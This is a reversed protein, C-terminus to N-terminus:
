FVIVSIKHLFKSVNPDSGEYKRLFETAESLWQKLKAVGLEDPDPFNHIRIGRTVGKDIDLFGYAQLRGLIIFAMRKSGLVFHQSIDQVSPPYGMSVIYRQIWKFVELDKEMLDFGTMNINIPPKKFKIKGM